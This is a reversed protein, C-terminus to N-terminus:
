AAPGREHRCLAVMRWATRGCEPAHTPYRGSRDRRGAHGPTFRNEKNIAAGQGATGRPKPVLDRLDRSGALRRPPPASAGSPRLAGTGRLCDLPGAGPDRTPAPSRRGTVIRRHPYGVAEEHPRSRRIRVRFYGHRQGTRHEAVEIRLEQRQEVAGVVPQALDEPCRVCEGKGHAPGAGGAHLRGEDVEDVRAVRDHHADVPDEAFPHALDGGAVAGVDDTDVGLPALRDVGGVQEGSM